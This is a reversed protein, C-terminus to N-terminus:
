GAGNNSARDYPEESYDFALVQEEPLNIRKYNPHSVLYFVLMAFVVLFVGFTNGVQAGIPLSSYNYSYIIKETIGMLAACTSLIFIMTGGFVHLPLYRTRLTKRIGPYLFSLFGAIFQIGFMIVATLGVFSHLSYFNPIPKPEAYNHSDLVTKLGGVVMLFASFHLFTHILKLRPKAENRLVRYILISDGQIIILGLTMLLPHWNFWLHPISPGSFGGNCLLGWLLVMIFTMGGCLQSCIFLPGFYSLNQRIPFEEYPEMVNGTFGKLDYKWIPAEEEFQPQEVEVPADISTDNFFRSRRTRRSKKALSRKAAM